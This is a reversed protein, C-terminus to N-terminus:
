AEELVAQERLSMWKFLDALCIACVEWRATRGVDMDIQVRTMHPPGVPNIVDRNCWDCEATNDSM